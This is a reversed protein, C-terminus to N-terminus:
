QQVPPVELASAATEVGTARVLLSKVIANTGVTLRFDSTEIVVDNAPAASAERGPGEAMPLPAASVASLSVVAALAPLKLTPHESKRIRM